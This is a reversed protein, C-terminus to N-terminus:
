KNKYVIFKNEENASSMLLFFVGFIFDGIGYISFILGNFFDEQYMDPLKHSNTKIWNFWIFVYIMKEIFFVFNLFCLNTYHNRISLYALGWLLISVVGLNSFTSNDYNQLLDSTFCRNFILISFNFSFALIYVYSFKLSM